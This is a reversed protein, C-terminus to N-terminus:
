IKVRACKTNTFVCKGNDAKFAVGDVIPSMLTVGIAIGANKTLCKNTADWNITTGVSVGKLTDDCPLYLEIGSNKIAVNVIQGEVAHPATDGEYVVDTNNVVLFGGFDSADSVEGTITLTNPNLYKGAGIVSNTNEIHVPTGAVMLDSVSLRAQNLSLKFFDTTVVGCIPKGSSAGVFSNNFTGITNFSM